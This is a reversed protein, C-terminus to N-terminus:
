GIRVVHTVEAGALIPHTRVIQATSPLVPLRGELLFAKLDEYAPEPATWTGPTLDTPALDVAPPPAVEPSNHVDPIVWVYIDGERAPPVGPVTELMTMLNM